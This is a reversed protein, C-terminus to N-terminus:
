CFSTSIEHFFALFNPKTFVAASFRYVHHSFVRQFDLIDALFAVIVLFQKFRKKLFNYFDIIVSGKEHPETMKKPEKRL